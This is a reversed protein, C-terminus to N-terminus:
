LYESSNVDQRHRVSSNCPTVRLEIGLLSRKRDYKTSRRKDCALVIWQCCQHKSNGEKLGYRMLYYYSSSSFEQVM